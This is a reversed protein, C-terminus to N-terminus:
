FLNSNLNKEKLDVLRKIVDKNEGYPRLFTHSVGNFELQIRVILENEELEKLWQSITRTSKDFFNAMTEISHYCEGTKNNSNLGLYIFLSVAGGSLHQLCDKFEHFVPFFGNKITFNMDRWEYHERKLMKAEDYKEKPNKM